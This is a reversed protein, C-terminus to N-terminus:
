IVNNKKLLKKLNKKGRDLLTAISGMPKELINSIEKYDKDELYKLVMVESYKQDLSELAGRVKEAQMEKDMEELLDMDDSLNEFIKESDEESLTVINKNKRIHSIATNRTIRYIWSSFKLGCDFDNLNQYTKIFADQLVDEVDEDALNTVRKAYWFLKQEYRKMLYLFNDADELTMEVLQEDSKEIM